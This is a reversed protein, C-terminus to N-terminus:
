PQLDWPNLIPLNLGTFDKVNRTVLTMGNELAICAILLDPQPFIRGSKRGQHLLILWRLITEETVNLIQGEFKPRIENALWNSLDRRKNLDTASDIGFRLEALTVSSIFLQHIDSTALFRIVGDAPRPKRFESIVNTDLLWPM